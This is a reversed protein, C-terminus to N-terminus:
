WFIIVLGTGGNGGAEVFQDSGTGGGGGGYIGIGGENLYAGGGGGGGFIGGSGGPAGVAGGLGMYGSISSFPFNAAGTNLATISAGNQTTSNVGNGRMCGSSGGGGGASGAVTAGAGGSYVINGIGTSGGPGGNGGLTGSVGAKGSYALNIWTSPSSALAIGTNTSTTTSSCRSGVTITYVTSPETNIVSYSFGGGGGGGGGNGYSAQGAGGNGGAGVSVVYIKYVSAPISFNTTATFIRYNFAPNSSIAGSIPADLYGAKTSDWLTNSLATSAPARSTITTDLRTSVNSALATSWQSGNARSSIPVDLYTAKTNDWNATSLATAANARSSITTDLRTSVNSALTTTWHSGNARSSIPGDLYTSKTNSWNDTSLATSAPARSTITTNLNDLNDTRATTLRKLLLITSSYIPALLSM